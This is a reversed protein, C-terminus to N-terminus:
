KTGEPQVTQEPTIRSIVYPPRDMSRDFIRAIYEGILGLAFLQAGSFLAIISALFPFGPISGLTLTTVVVYIFIIIGFIVFLFGLWSSFRLPITSFGTMILFVQKVLKSFTYNSHGFERPQEEVEISVFRTTGWSLLVDLIVGSSQYNEFSRRLDTRFARFASIERVTKLNMVFALTRKSIRSALNRWLSHPMKRPAGYVVDFGEKLKALLHPIEEPPHQLDDDLTITVAWKANRTGCLLANHQGYNRMLNIGRVWPYKHNLQNIINWSEDQSGDNILLVEFFPTIKPLVQGLRGILIPLSEQSNYVPIVVSISNFSSDTSNEM